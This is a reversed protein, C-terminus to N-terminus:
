PPASNISASDVGSAWGQHRRLQKVIARTLRTEQWAIPTPASCRCAERTQTAPPPAHATRDNADEDRFLLDATPREGHGADPGLMPAQASSGPSIGAM